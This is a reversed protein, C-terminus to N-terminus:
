INQRICKSPTLVLLHQFEAYSHGQAQDLQLINDQQQLSFSSKKLSDTFKIMYLHRITKYKVKFHNVDNFM